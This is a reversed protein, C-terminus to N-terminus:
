EVKVVVTEAITQLKKTQKTTTTLVILENICNIRPFVQYLLVQKSFKFNKPIKM